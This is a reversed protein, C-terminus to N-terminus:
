NADFNLEVLESDLHNDVIAIAAKGDYSFSIRTKIPLTTAPYEQYDESILDLEYFRWNTNAYDINAALLKNGQLSLQNRISFDLKLQLPKVVQYDGDLVFFQGLDNAAIFQQQWPLFVRYGKVLVKQTMTKRDFVNVQWQEGIKETFYIDKGDAAFSAFAVAQDIGAIQTVQGTTRDLLQLQKQTSGLLLESTQQSEATVRFSYNASYYTKKEGTDPQYHNLQYSNQYEEVLWLHDPTRSFDLRHPPKEFTFYRQAFDPQTWQFQYFTTTQPQKLLGFLQGSADRALASFRNAGTFDSNLGSVINLQKTNDGANILVRHNDLWALHLEDGMLRRDAIVDERLLTKDAVRYVQIKYGADKRIFVFHKKDPSVLLYNDQSDSSSSFTFQSFAATDLNLLYYATSKENKKQGNVLVLQGQYSVAQGIVRFDQPQIMKVPKNLNTMAYILLWADEGKMASVFLTENDLMSMIPYTVGDPLKIKQLHGLQRDYVYPQWGEIKKLRGTFAHYRGNPSVSLFIKEGEVSVLPKTTFTQNKPAVPLLTFALVSCMLVITAALWYWRKSSAKPASVSQNSLNPYAAAITSVVEHRIVDVDAIAIQEPLAEGIFQYGRKMQSKIYLPADPDTDGLLARLKSITRRVATDTVIRGAWVEAHLEVLPVLRDRHQILYCLVEIVKPEVALEGDPSYIRRADVDLRFGGFNLLAM